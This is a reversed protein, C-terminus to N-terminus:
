VGKQEPDWIIKHLQLQVKINHLGEKNLFEVIKKPKIKGFVPSVYVHCSPKLLKYIIKMFKLDESNQVVFKLVDQSRLKNFHEYLMYNDMNSGPCKCDVTFFVNPTNFFKLFDVSGNTEINVHFEQFSLCTLLKDLELSSQLLPEGGTLTVNKCGKSVEIIKDLIEEVSMTYKTDAINQAYETDCYSCNLNCGAFRVFVCPLGARIGEGEISKFIEVVNM